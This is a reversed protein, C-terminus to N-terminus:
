SFSGQTILTEGAIVTDGPNVAITMGEGAPIVVDVQSGFRIMGIRQGRTVTEGTDVYSVIRRVLRSAIQVVGIAYSGTEIVTTCRENRFPAEENRLSLFTGPIHQLHIIKGAAPARNVHVNLINMEIGILYSAKSLLNTAALEQLSFSHGQKRSVPVMGAEIRKVYLVTGDAPSVLAGKEEPDRRDPDRFFNALMATLLIVGYLCTLAPIEMYPPFFLIVEVIVIALASIVGSGASFLVASAFPVRLKVTMVLCVCASLVITYIGLIM